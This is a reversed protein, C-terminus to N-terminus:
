RIVLRQGIALYRGIRNWRKLEAVSMGYRRSISWATEGRRVVHIRGGGAPIPPAYMLPLRAFTEAGGEIPVVLLNPV